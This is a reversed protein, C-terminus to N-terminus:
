PGEARTLSSSGILDRATAALHRLAAPLRMDEALARLARRLADDSQRSIRRRHHVIAAAIAGVYLRAGVRRDATTEGIIRMTKFASKARELTQLSVDPDTLLATASGRRPDIDHALWDALAMASDRVDALAWRLPEDMPSRAPDSM